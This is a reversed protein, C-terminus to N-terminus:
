SSCKLSVLIGKWFKEVRTLLGSLVLGIVKKNPIKQNGSWNGHENGGRGMGGGLANLVPKSERESCANVLKM